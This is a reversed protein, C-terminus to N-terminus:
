EYAYSGDSKVFSAAIKAAEDKFGLEDNVWHWTERILTYTGRGGQYQEGYGTLFNNRNLHNALEEGSMRKDNQHLFSALRWIYLKKQNMENM